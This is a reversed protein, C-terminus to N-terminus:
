TGANSINTAMRSLSAQMPYLAGLTTFATSQATLTSALTAPDGGAEMGGVSGSATVVTNSTSIVSGVAGLAASIASQMALLETVTAGSFSSIGSAVGQLNSVSSGINGGYASLGISVVNTLDAGVAADVGLLAELIPTTDDSVVKLTISYPIEFPQQYDCLFEEIIVTYLFTSWSLPIPQGAIRLADLEQAREEALLGRFRGSWKIDADDRGMADIIRVGGPLKHIVLEQSGGVGKITEPIEFDTFIVPGLTLTVFM